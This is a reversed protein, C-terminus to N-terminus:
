PKSVPTVWVSSAAKAGLAFERDNQRIKMTGAFSAVEEVSLVAGPMINGQELYELLAPLNAAEESIREVVVTTGAAMTDLPVGKVPLLTDAVPIPNGHPCTAPQGLVQYLSEMVKDSIGHELACAEQHAQPWPIKLVDTLLREALRHRRVLNNAAKLGKSTLRIEKGRNTTVLGDRMMRRLTATVTPASVNLREALRAGLVRKGESSMNLIAELYEEVTPTARSADQM